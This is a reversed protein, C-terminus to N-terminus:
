YYLPADKEIVLIASAGEEPPADRGSMQGDPAPESQGGWIFSVLLQHGVAETAVCRRHRLEHFAHLFDIILDQRHLHSFLKGLAVGDERGMLRQCLHENRTHQVLGNRKGRHRELLM